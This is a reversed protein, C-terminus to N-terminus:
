PKTCSPPISPPLLVASVSVKVCSCSDGSGGHQTVLQMWTLSSAHRRLSELGFYEHLRSPSLLLGVAECFALQLRLTKPKISLFRGPQPAQARAPLMSRPHRSRFNTHRTCYMGPAAAALKRKHQSIPADRPASIAGSRSAAHTSWLSLVPPYRPPSASSPWFPLLSRSFSATACCQPSSKQSHTLM